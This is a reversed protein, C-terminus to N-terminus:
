NIVVWCYSIWPMSPMESIERTQPTVSWSYFCHSHLTSHTNSNFSCNGKDPDSLIKRQMLQWGFLLLIIDAQPSQQSWSSLGTKERLRLSIGYQRLIIHVKGIHRWQFGSNVTIWFLDTARGQTEGSPKRLQRKSSFPLTPALVLHIFGQSFLWARERGKLEQCRIRKREWSKKKVTM